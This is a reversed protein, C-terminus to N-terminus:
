FNDNLRILYILAKFPVWRTAYNFYISMSSAHICGPEIGMTFANMNVLSENTRTTHNGKQHPMVGTYQAILDPYFKLDLPMKLEYTDWSTDTPFNLNPM